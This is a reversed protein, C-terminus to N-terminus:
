WRVGVREQFSLSGMRKGEGLPTDIKAGEVM